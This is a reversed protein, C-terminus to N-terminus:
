QLVEMSETELQCDRQELLEALRELDNSSMAHAIDYNLETTEMIRVEM